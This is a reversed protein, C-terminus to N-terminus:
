GGIVKWSREWGSAVVPYAGIRGNTQRILGM